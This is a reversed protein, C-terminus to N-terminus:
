LSVMEYLSLMERLEKKMPVFNVWSKKEVLINERRM